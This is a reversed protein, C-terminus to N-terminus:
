EPMYLGGTEELWNAISEVAKEVNNDSIDIKLSPLLSERVLRELLKQEEIFMGLDNYQSPKGSVKLRERRAAEFSEPSRTCFILRFGLPVLNEELWRFDYNKGYAHLQYM